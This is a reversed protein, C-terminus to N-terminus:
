DEEGEVEGEDRARKNGVVGALTEAPYWLNMKDPYFLYILAKDTGVYEHKKSFVNMLVALLTAHKLQITSGPLSPNFRILVAQSSGEKTAAKMLDQMREVEREKNYDRHAYQDCELMVCIDSLDWVIDPRFSCGEFIKKNRSSFLPIFSCQAWALLNEVMEDEVGQRVGRAFVVNSEERLKNATPGKLHHIVLNYVDELKAFPVDACLCKDFNQLGM